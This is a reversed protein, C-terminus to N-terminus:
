GPPNHARLAARREIEDVMGRFQESINKRLLPVAIASPVDIGPQITGSWHLTYNDDGDVKEIDYSGSLQKLNGKLLHISIVSPSQDITEVTVDIPFHLFWLRAVGSQEVVSTKDHRELLHSKKMGPIFDALHDYDTLTDHILALPASITARADVQVADGNRVADVAFSEASHVMTTTALLAVCTTLSAAIRVVLRGSDSLSFPPFRM